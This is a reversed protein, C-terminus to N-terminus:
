NATGRKLERFGIGSSLLLLLVSGALAIKEGTYYVAPEFKFELKHKGAPIRMARLVYNVRFHPVPQGDIFAKWGKDYYIESFVALQESATETEYTLHNPKYDTHRIVATSDFVPNFGQLLDGFRQDVIATQAPQFDDLAKMEADADPVMKYEMVFWAAGLAGPNQQAMPGSGEQGRVIFYKTNLMNLVQMNNNSIQNEILEQYRKMKAGHYGGISHHFYSTSADNFTSLSTNMVRYGLSQDQMISLDAQSPTFVANKNKSAREFHDNNLYRKNVPWMDVLVLAAVGLMAYTLSVKSKLYFWLLTFTLGIFFFSRFADMRLTNERDTRLAEILWEYQKFNEDVSASYNFFMGPMLAFLLCIGGTIYFSWLLAKTRKVTDLEKNFLQGAGMMGLLAVALGALTLTMSVTRFKNYGPIYHFFFENFSMFNKGWSLMIFLITATVLWIRYENKVLMIGIVFFFVMIAGFYVPGSTSPQDGWYLPAQQVFQNAQAGAGNAVLAKYTASNKGIDSASAGGMFDPILLTMTESIGYSWSFAYDMDLGTSIKKETLESPGRTTDKGYEYTAWLSTINPLVALMLAVMLVAVSKGLHMWVGDRITKYVEVMGLLALALALYYTIQLHNAYIQLSLGLATLVGGLLYRKNFVMMVGAVTFPLLAIAHMKSNHGAIIIIFNYSAFAYGIAGAVALRFDLKLTLLLIYFGLMALFIYGFPLPFAITLLDNVYKVLNAPYLVSIQYAPMGGFMSRTWLPEADYKERFDQLEKSMGEWQLVDHQPLERGQIVPSFYVACIAVFFLVVYLHPLLNKLRM